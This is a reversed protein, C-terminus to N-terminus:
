DELDPNTFRTGEIAKLEEDADAQRSFPGLRYWFPALFFVISFHGDPHREIRSKEKLHGDELYSWMKLIQPRDPTRSSQAARM